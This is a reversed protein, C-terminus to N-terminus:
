GKGFLRRWWPRHRNAQRAQALEARLAELESEHRRERDALIGGAAMGTSVFGFSKAIMGRPAAARLLM